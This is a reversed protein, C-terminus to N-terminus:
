YAAAYPGHRQDATWSVAGELLFRTRRLRLRCGFANTWICVGRTGEPCLGGQRRPYLNPLPYGYRISATKGWSTLTPYYISWIACKTASGGSYVQCNEYAERVADSLAPLIYDGSLFVIRLDKRNDYALRRQIGEAFSAEEREIYDIYFQEESNGYEGPQNRM